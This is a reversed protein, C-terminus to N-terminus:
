CFSITPFMEEKGFTELIRKVAFGACVVHHGCTEGAAMIEGDPRYLSANYYHQQTTTVTGGARELTIGM